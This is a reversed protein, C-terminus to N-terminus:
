KRAINLSTIVVAIMLALSITAFLLDQITLM